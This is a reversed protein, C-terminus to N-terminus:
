RKGYERILQAAKKQGKEELFSIVYDIDCMQGRKKQNLGIVEDISDWDFEIGYKQKLVEAYDRATEYQCGFPDIADMMNCLNIFADKWRLLRVKGILNSMLLFMVTPTFTALIRHALVQSIENAKKASVELPIFQANRVRIEKKLEEIGGREVIELAYKLGDMRAQYTKDRKINM